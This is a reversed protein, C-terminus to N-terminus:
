NVLLPYYTKNAANKVHLKFSHLKHEPLSTDICTTNILIGLFVLCTTPGELKDPALPIGLRSALRTITQVNRACIPSSAPGVTFYYDLNHMLEQIHHSNKLIWEFADALRNFLFPSSRLGFPLCLDIYFKDQWHIGLHELDELHVPYLRFAHKIDLKAMLANRGHRAVLTLAQDFAAYHSTFDDKSIFDNVSSGHPSSIDMILQWTGDKKPVVGLPVNFM